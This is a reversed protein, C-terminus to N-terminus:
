PAGDQRRLLDLTREDPVGECWTDLARQYPGDPGAVSFLTMSSRFKLDDPSGFIAHLSGGAGSGVAAVAQELRPGLMPHDLYASAEDLGEIGFFQATPSQGLGRMQPFVFWMWHSRKGGSRLEELAADFVGAQANVFRDLNWPSSM